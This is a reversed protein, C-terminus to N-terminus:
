ISVHERFQVATTSRVHGKLFYGSGTDTMELHCARDSASLYQKTSSGIREGSYQFGLKSLFDDIKSFSRDCQISIDEYNRHKESIPM